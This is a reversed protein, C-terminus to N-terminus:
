PTLNYFMCDVKFLFVVKITMEPIQVDVRSGPGLVVKDLVREVRGRNGLFDVDMHDVKQVHLFHSSHM